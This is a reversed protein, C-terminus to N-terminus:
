RSLYKVLAAIALIVAVLLLLMWIGGFGMGGGMWGFGDMMPEGEGRKRERATLRECLQSHPRAVVYPDIIPILRRPPQTGAPTDRASFSKRRSLLRLHKRGPSRASCDARNCRKSWVVPDSELPRRRLAGAM